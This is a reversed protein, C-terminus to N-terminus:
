GIVDRGVALWGQGLRHYRGRLLEQAILLGRGFPHDRMAARARLFDIKARALELIPEEKRLRDSFEVLRKELSQFLRVQKQFYDRDCRRHERVHQSVTQGTGGVAQWRHQRYQVLADPLIVVRGVAAAVLSIWQDHMWGEPIPLLTETLSRRVAMTHGSVVRLKVFTRFARGGNVATLHRHTFRHRALNSYGLPKLDADVIRSDSAVLAVQPQNEFVRAQVAIKNRLWVDDQDCFMILDGRCLRMAREFCKAYGLNRDIRDLRVEFPACAAFAEVRQATCDTSADDCVIVEDPQRRQDVLSQLQQGIFAEGEYTSVAISIMMSIATYQVPVTGSLGHM